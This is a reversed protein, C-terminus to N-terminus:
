DLWAERERNKSQRQSTAGDWNQAMMRLSPLRDITLQTAISV